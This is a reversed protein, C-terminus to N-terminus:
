GGGLTSGSSAGTLITSSRGTRGRGQLISLRQARKVAEDDAIPMVREAPTAAAAPKKKKGGLLGSAVALGGLPFVSAVGKLIKNAM